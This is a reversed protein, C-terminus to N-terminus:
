LSRNSKNLYERAFSTYAVRMKASEHPCRVSAVPCNRNECYYESDVSGKILPKGCEPCNVMKRREEPVSSARPL